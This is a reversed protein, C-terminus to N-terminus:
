ADPEKFGHRRNIEDIKQRIQEPSMYIIGLEHCVQTLYEKKQKAEVEDAAMAEIEFHYGWDDTHKLAIVTDKYWFNVRRQYVRNVQTFGLHQYMKVADEVKDTPIGVEYEELINMTEDGLKVTIKAKNHSYDHTVKLIFGTTVFFYTVKNDEQQKSSYQELYERLRQYEQESLVGRLEIEFQKAEVAM